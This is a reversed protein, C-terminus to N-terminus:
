MSQCTGVDDRAGTAEERRSKKNNMALGAHFTRTHRFLSKWLAQCLLGITFILDRRFHGPRPDRNRCTISRAIIYSRLGRRNGERIAPIASGRLRAILQCAVLLTRALITDSEERTVGTDINDIVFRAFLRPRISSSQV